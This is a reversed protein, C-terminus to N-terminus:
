LIKGIEYLFHEEGKKKEVFDMNKFKLLVFNWIQIPSIEGFALHPSIVSTYNLYPFDRKDFYGEIKEDIFSNIKILANEEGPKWIKSFDNEWEKNTLLNLDKLEIEEEDIEKKEDNEYNEDKIFFYKKKKKKNIEDFLNPLSKEIKM